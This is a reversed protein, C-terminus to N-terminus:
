PHRNAADDIAFGLFRPGVVISKPHQLLQANDRRWSLGALRRTVQCVLSADLGPLGYKSSLVDRKLLTDGVDVATLRSPPLDYMM